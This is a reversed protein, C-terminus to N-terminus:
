NLEDTAQSAAQKELTEKIRREKKKKSFAAFSTTLSDRDPNKNGSRSRAIVPIALQGHPCDPKTTTEALSPSCLICLPPLLSPPREHHGPRDVGGAM